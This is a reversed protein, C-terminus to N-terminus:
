RRPSTRQRVSSRETSSRLPASKEPKACLVFLQGADLAKDLDDVFSEIQDARVRGLVDCAALRFRARVDAETAPSVDLQTISIRRGDALGVEVTAGQLRPFEANLRENLELQTLSVLRLVEADGLDRYNKETLERNAFVAAVCFPISMKAQLVRDFPGLSDCGPYTAAAKPVGIKLSEIRAANPGLEEVLRMAAQSATQAFHCVPAGKHYVNLIDAQGGPFLRVPGPMARRGIVAFLGAPGELVDPSGFAGSQALRAATLANRAAFGPHFFMDSAGSSTWQNVGSSANVAFAIASTVREVDLKLLRSAGAAASIPGVIGTPRYIAAFAEDVLLRGIRCGVEYALVAAGLLEGGSYKGEEALAFLVPWIVSGHHTVSAAHMDGRVLGHGMVANVFAADGATSTFNTGIVHNKTARAAIALAQKSPPMDVSEFAGGLFDLLCLKAKAIPLNGIVEPKFEAIAEALELSRTRTRLKLM